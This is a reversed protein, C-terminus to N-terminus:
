AKDHLPACELFEGKNAVATHGTESIMVDVENGIQVKPDVTADKTLSILTNTGNSTRVVVLRATLITVYGHIIKTGSCPSDQSPFPGWIFYVAISISLVFLILKNIIHFQTNWNRGM